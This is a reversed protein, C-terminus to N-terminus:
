SPCGTHGGSIWLSRSCNGREIMTAFLDNVTKREFAVRESVVYDGVALTTIEIDAGLKRLAEGVKCRMERHDIFIRM